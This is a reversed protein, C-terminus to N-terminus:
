SISRAKTGVCRHKSYGSISRGSAAGTEVVPDAANLLLGATLTTTIAVFRNM